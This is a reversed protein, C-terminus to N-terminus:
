HGALVHTGGAILVGAQGAEVAAERLAVLVHLRWARTQAVRRGPEADGVARHELGTREAGARRAELGLRLQEAAAASVEPGVARQRDVALGLAAVVAVPRVRQRRLAVVPIADLDVSVAAGVRRELGALAREGVAAAGAAITRRARPRARRPPPSRTGRRAPRIARGRDRRTM